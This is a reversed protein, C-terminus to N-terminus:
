RAGLAPQRILAYIEEIGVPAAATLNEAGTATVLVSDELRVHVGKDALHLLPEVNYVVGAELTADGGPRGPSVDHVSMGVPHGIYRGFQRFQEGYGHREYVAAAIDKLQSLRVGPKMAAIIANRAELVTRYMREQEPTFRGSVPWTRTIDSTYYEADAGYDVYVLDGAQMRRNNQIYHLTLTNPGSAVIPIFADGRVGSRVYWFRAAAEVEYEHMGPRTGKMAERIGEAGVRGAVRMREIEYPTKVWRMRDLRPSLDAVPAQARIGRIREIARAVPTPGGWVPHEQMARAKMLVEFRAHQLEDHPTLPLFLTDAGAAVSDMLPWFREVGQLAVGFHAEANPHERVGPGDVSVQSPTRAPALVVARRTRGDLVLISGPEEIGTLYYFDPSQRFRVAHPHAPSGFVVAAGKGIQDFLRGRRAAFEGRDFAPEQAALLAPLVVLVASLLSGRRQM